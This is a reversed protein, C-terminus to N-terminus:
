DLTALAALYDAVDRATGGPSEWKARVIGQGDVLVTVRRATGSREDFAGYARAVEGHPWFDSLLTLDVQQADALARLAYMSDCSVALVGPSGSLPPKASGGPWEACLAALESSCVPTFAAPFFVVLVPGNLASLSVAAGHQDRLTFDPAVDGVDVM